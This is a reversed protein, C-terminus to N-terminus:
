AGQQAHPTACLPASIGALAVARDWLDHAGDNTAFGYESAFDMACGGMLTEKVGVANLVLALGEATDSWVTIRPRLDDWDSTVRIGGNEATIFHIKM